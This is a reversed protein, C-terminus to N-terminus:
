CACDLLPGARTYIRLTQCRSQTGGAVAENEGVRHFLQVSMDRSMLYFEDEEATVSCFYAWRRNAGLILFILETNPIIGARFLTWPVAGASEM